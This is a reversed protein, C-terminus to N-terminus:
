ELVLPLEVAMCPEGARAGSIEWCPCVGGKDADFDWGDGWCNRHKNARCDPCPKVM